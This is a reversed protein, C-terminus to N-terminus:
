IAFTYFLEGLGYFGLSRNSHQIVKVLNEDRSISKKTIETGEVFPRESVSKISKDLV